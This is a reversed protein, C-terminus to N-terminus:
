IIRGNDYPIPAVESLSCYIFGMCRLANWWSVRNREREARKEKLHLSEAAQNVCLSHVSCGHLFRLSLCLLPLPLPTGRRPTHVAHPKEGLESCLTSCHRFFALKVSSYLKWNLTKSKRIAGESARRVREREKVGCSTVNKTTGRVCLTRQSALIFVYPPPSHSFPDARLSHLTEFDMLPFFRRLFSWM